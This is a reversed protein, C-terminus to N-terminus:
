SPMTMGDCPGPLCWWTQRDAVGSHGEEDGVIMMGGREISKVSANILPTVIDVLQNEPRYLRATVTPLGQNTDARMSLWGPVPRSRVVEQPLKVGHRRLVYVVVLM